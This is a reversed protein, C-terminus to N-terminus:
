YKSNNFLISGIDEKQVPKTAGEKNSDEHILEGITQLMKMVAPHTAAGTDILVQKVEDGGFVNLAEVAYGLKEKSLLGQKGCEAEWEQQQKEGSHLLELMTEGHMDMLANAQAQTLKADKAIKTFREKLQESITLGEALNFEYNEPVTTDVPQQPNNAAPEPAPQNDMPRDFISTKPVANSTNPDGGVNGSSGVDAGGVNAAGGADGGGGAGDAELCYFYKKHM